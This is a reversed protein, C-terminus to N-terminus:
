HDNEDSYASTDFAVSFSKILKFSLDVMADRYACVNEKFNQLHAPWQNEGHAYLHHQYEYSNPDADFLMVFSDMINPKKNKGETTVKMHSSENPMYGRYSDNHEIKMKEELPLSHFRHAEKFITEMLDKSIGHNILYAFGYKPFDANLQKAVEKFGELDDNALYRLDITPINDLM